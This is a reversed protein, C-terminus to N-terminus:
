PPLSALYAALALIDSPELRAVIPTMLEAAAGARAGTKFDYLQRVVYSPSRGAISPVDDIGRLRTGHCVECPQTGGVGTSALAAGRAISGPPVYAVFGSADNRLETQELNEPMEIIRDGIPERQAPVTAVLMWGQVRSKPVTASEVVRIWPEPKLAAFYQAAEAVEAANAKSESDAMLAVPVLRPESSKRRGTRFDEMQRAIYRASLGAIRANEPRGQGNPLHCFGCARVDPERGHAVVPPLAPHADPHWDPVGFLNRLQAPVFTEHSGPVRLPGDAAPPVTSGGPDVAYAWDPLRIDTRAPLDVALATAACAGLTIAVLASM